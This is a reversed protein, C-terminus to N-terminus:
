NGMALKVRAYPKQRNLPGIPIVKQFLFAIIGDPIAPKNTAYIFGQARQHAPQVLPSNFGRRGARAMMHFLATKLVDIFGRFRFSSLFSILLLPRNSCSM